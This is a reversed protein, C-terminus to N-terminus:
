LTSVHNIGTLIFVTRKRRDDGLNHRDELLIFNLLSEAQILYWYLARIPGKIPKLQDYVHPTIKESLEILDVGM